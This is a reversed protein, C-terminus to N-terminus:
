ELTVELVYPDRGRDVSYGSVIIIWTGDEPDTVVVNEPSNLTAGKYLLTLDFSPSILIMDLDYTPFKSWDHKWSLEFTAVSTEEPVDVFFLNDEGQAITATIGGANSERDGQVRTITVTATLESANNTWDSELTVKMLGPEMPWENLDYPIIPGSLNVYGDGVEVSADDFVNASDIIYLAGGRKASKVYFEFSNPFFGPGPDIPGDVDIDIQVYETEEDIKFIWNVTRGPALTVTQSVTDRKGTLVNPKLGGVHDHRLGNNVKGSQLLALSNAVNLYGHGQDLESWEFDLPVAGDMIANRIARPGISPDNNEAWVDLLAAGGAVVPASFSTGSGWGIGGNPFLSFNAVGTAILDPSVRGDGLPGRSSFDAPRVEDTPYMALGQGPGVGFGGLLPPLIGLYEWYIRTHAPDSAAAVTLASFATGPRSVSNPAPGENGASTVVIMGADTAADVLEEELTRGDYLSPGGLSMNVVDIDLGEKKATIVHDLGAEIYSTPVGAGTHPFVKVAYIQSNPAIGLMPILVFGGGILREAEDPLFTEFLGGVVDLLVCDNGAAIVGGV